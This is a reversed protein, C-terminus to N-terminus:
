EAEEPGALGHEPDGEGGELIKKLAKRARTLRVAVNGASLGLVEAIEGNTLGDLHLMVTQRYTPSLRRIAEHLVERRRATATREAPGPRPDRLVVHDLSRHDRRGMRARHSLGRNHAIRYVFTRLSCDGRFRHLAKWLAVHIDQRLDERDHRDAAYGATLRWLADGYESVARDFLDRREEPGPTM